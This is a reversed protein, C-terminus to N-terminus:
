YLHSHIAFLLVRLIKTGIVELFEAEINFPHSASIKAGGTGKVSRTGDRVVSDGM